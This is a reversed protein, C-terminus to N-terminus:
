LESISKVIRVRTFRSKVTDLLAPSPAPNVVTIRTEQKLQNLIWDIEPRDHDWYSIGAIVCENYKGAMKKIYSFGSSIHPFGTITSYEMPLIIDPSVFSSKYDRVVRVDGRNRSMITNYIDEVKFGSLEFNISGHPKIFQPLPWNCSQGVIYSVPASTVFSINKEVILDYNLSIIADLADINSFFWRNWDWALKKNNIDPNSYRDSLYRFADGLYLRLKHPFFDSNKVISYKEFVPKLLLESFDIKSIMYIIEFDNLSPNNQSLIAYAEYIEPFIDRSSQGEAALVPFTWSLPASTDLQLEDPVVSKTFDITLGNGVILLISM